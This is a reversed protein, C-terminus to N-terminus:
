PTACPTAPTARMWTRNTRSGPYDRSADVPKSSPARTRCCRVRWSSTLIASCSPAANAGDMGSLGAPGSGRLLQLLVTEAQDDLHHATLLVTAGHAACMEGLARYRLKRAAAEVGAGGKEVTVRRHDCALGLAAAGSEVHGLWADANPSLGHHVHFVHLAVGQERCWDAALRLLVM